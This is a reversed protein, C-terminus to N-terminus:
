TTYLSGNVGWLATICQCLSGLSTPPDSDRSANPFWPSTASLSIKAPHHPPSPNSKTTQLDKGVKM